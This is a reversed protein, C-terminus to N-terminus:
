RIVCKKDPANTLAYEEIAKDCISHQCKLTLELQNHPLSVKKPFVLAETWASTYPDKILYLSECPSDRLSLTKPNFSPYRGSPYYRLNLVLIIALIIRRNQSILLFLSSLYFLKAIWYYTASTLWLFIGCVGAALSARGFNDKPRLILLVVLVLLASEVLAGGDKSFFRQLETLNIMVLLFILLAGYRNTVAGVAGVIPHIFSACIIWIFSGSRIGYTLFSVSVIQTWQNTTFSPILAIWYFFAERASLRLCGFTMCLLLFPQILLVSEIGTIRGLNSVIAHFVWPYGHMDGGWSLSLKSTPPSGFVDFYRILLIHNAGDWLKSYPVLSFKTLWFYFLIFCASVYINSGIKHKM